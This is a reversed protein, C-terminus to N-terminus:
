ATLPYFGQDFSRGPNRDLDPCFDGTVTRPPKKKPRLGVLPKACALRSGPALLEACQDQGLPTRDLLSLFIPLADRDAVDRLDRRGRARHFVSQPDKRSGQCWGEGAITVIVGFHCSRRRIGGCVSALSRNCRVAWMPRCQLTVNYPKLVYINSYSRGRSAHWFTGAKSRVPRLTRNPAQLM